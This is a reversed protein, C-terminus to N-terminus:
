LPRIEIEAPEARLPFVENPIRPTRVPVANWLIAPLGSLHEFYYQALTELERRVEPPFGKRGKRRDVLLSQLYLRTYECHGWLDGIRNVIRPYRAGCAMPRVGPPLSALWRFTRDLLVRHSADAARRVTSWEEEADAGAPSAAAPRDKGRWSVSPEGGAPESIPYESRFPASM